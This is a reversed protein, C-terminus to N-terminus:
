ESRLVKVPNVAAARIAQISITALTILMCALWALLFVWWSLAIRYAFGQLWAHMALWAAPFAILASLSVLRVFDKSLLRVITGKGAGLVKRISMERMRQQTAYAALGLLGICAIFIALASFV